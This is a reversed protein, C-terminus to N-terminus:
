GNNGSGLLRIDEKIEAPFTLFRHYPARKGLKYLEERGLDTPINVKQLMFALDGSNWPYTGNENAM